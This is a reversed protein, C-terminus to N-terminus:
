QCTTAADLPVGTPWAFGQQTVSGDPQIQLIPMAKDVPNGDQNFIIAGSAGPIFTTCRYGLFYAAVTAPDTVASENDRVATAATLVADHTMIAQGDSLESASFGNTAYANAFKQYNERNVSGSPEDKWQDGNALATYFVGVQVPGAPPLATGVINSADDGTMVDVRTLGCAGGQSLATLFSRLDSGRGAFYVLDPTLACITNHMGAFQDTMYEERTTGHLPQEPSRYSRSYPIPTQHQAAYADAFAKALTQAYSDQENVDHVLMVKRYGRATVHSLGAKAQDSNLPAVRVFDKSHRGNLGTNINDATIVSGVTAIHADSLAAIANRTNDLSQGIGTVAVIHEGAQAQKIADVAAPWSAAASGYNALLLKIKPLTGSAVSENNARWVATVAGNIRHRLAIIVDSDSRPDVTLDDILVITAYPGTVKSNLEAVKRVEPALTDIRGFGRQDLDLGVCAGSVELETLGRGCPASPRLALWGAWAVGAVLVLVATLSVVLHRRPWSRPQVAGSGPGSPRQRDLLIHFRSM